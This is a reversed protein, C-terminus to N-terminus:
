EAVKITDSQCLNCRGNRFFRFVFVELKKEAFNGQQTVNCNQIQNFGEIEAQRIIVKELKPLGILNDFTCFDQLIKQQGTIEISKIETGSISSIEVESNSGIIVCNVRDQFSIM